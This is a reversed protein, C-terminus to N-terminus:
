VKERNQKSINIGFGRRNGKESMGIQVGKNCNVGGISLGRM